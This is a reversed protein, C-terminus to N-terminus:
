SLCCVHLLNSLVPYFVSVEDETEKFGFSIFRRCGSTQAELSSLLRKLDNLSVLDKLKLQQQLKNWSSSAAYTHFHALALSYYHIFSFIIFLLMSVSLCRLRSCWLSSRFYRTRLSSLSRGCFCVLLCVGPEWQDLLKSKRTSFLDIRQLRAPGLASHSQFCGHLAGASCFCCEDM